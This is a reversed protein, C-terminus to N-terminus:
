DICAADHATFCAEDAMIKTHSHQKIRKLGAIDLKHNPQECFQINLAKLSKLVTIANEVSWGQNADLRLPIEYGIAERIGRIIEIDHSASNNKGVKVKIAIPNKAALLKADDAMREPSQIYITEDSIIEKKRGGLYAYLPLGAFQSAVDFLAMDFASKCTYNFPAFAQLSKMREEIALADKQLLLASFPKSLAMCTAQTEGVIMPFPAGEGWGTIGEDTYIRVLFNEAADITGLSISTPKAPITYAYVEIKKIIAPM